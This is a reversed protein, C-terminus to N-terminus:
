ELVFLTCPCSVSFTLFFARFNVRLLRFCIRSLFVINKKWFFLKSPITGNRSPHAPRFLVLSFYVNLETTLTPIFYLQTCMELFVVSSQLFIRHEKYWYWVQVFDKLVTSLSNVTGQKEPFLGYLATYSSYSLVLRLYKLQLCRKPKKSQKRSNKRLFLCSRLGVTPLIRCFARDHFILLVIFWAVLCLYLIFCWREGKTNQALRAGSKLVLSKVWRFSTIVDLVAPVEFFFDSSFHQHFM